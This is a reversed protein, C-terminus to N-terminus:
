NTFGNAKLFALEDASAMCIAMMHKDLYAALAKRNTPSPLKRYRNILKTM